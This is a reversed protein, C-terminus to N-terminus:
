KVEEIRIIFINSMPFQAKALKQADGYSQATIIVETRKHDVQMTVKYKKMKEEETILKQISFDIRKGKTFITYLSAVDRLDIIFRPM